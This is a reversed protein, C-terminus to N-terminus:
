LAIPFSVSAIWSKDKLNVSDFNTGPSFPGIQELTSTKYTVEQYELNLSVVAVRFGAGIRYGSANSFKVDFSGSKDPNLEGGLIYSGWVRLGVLPTQIGVVPGYNMETASANYGSSDKFTPMAYRADVGAFVIGEFHFGLRAGLGFGNVTGTTDGLPAPMTVSSNSSEYTVAPEVFLGAASENEEAVARTGALAACMTFVTISFIRKM